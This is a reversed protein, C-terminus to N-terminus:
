DGNKWKLHNIYKTHYQFKDSMCVVSWSIIEAPLHAYRARHPPNIAIPLVLPNSNTPSVSQEVVVRLTFVHLMELLM